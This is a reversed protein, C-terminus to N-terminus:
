THSQAQLMAALRAVLGILDQTYSVVYDQAMDRALDIRGADILPRVHPRFDRMTVIMRGHDDTMIGWALAKTKGDDKATMFRTLSANQAVRGVNSYVEDGKLIENLITFQDPIYNLIHQLRPPLGVLLKLIGVNISEGRLAVNKNAALIYSFARLNGVLFTRKRIFAQLAEIGEPTDPPEIRRYAQYAEWTEDWVWVLSDALNRFSIPFLRESPDYLSADVPILLAPNVLRGRRLSRTIERVARREGPTRANARLDEIKERVPPSPRYHAAHFIRTIVLLDNVTLRTGTQALMKRLKFIHSIDFITTEASLEPPQQLARAKELFAPSPALPLQRAPPAESPTIHVIRKCWQVAASTLVEAMAMSWTGDFFMHSQDFVVHDEARIITLPHDGVGRAARRLEALLKDKSHRDWNVIIPAESLAEVARRTEEPLLDRLHRQMKRPTETLLIDVAQEVEWAEQSPTEELIAQLQWEVMSAPAMDLYGVWQGDKARFLQDGDLILRNGQPDVPWGEIFRLAWCVGGQGYVVPNGNEDHAAVNILFYRGGFVLGIRAAWLPIERKSDVHKGHDLRALLSMQKQYAQRRAGALRDYEGRVIIRQEAPLADIAPQIFAEFAAKRIDAYTGNLPAGYPRAVEWQRPLRNFVPQNELGADRAAQSVLRIWTWEDWVVGMLEEYGWLFQIVTMVWATLDDLENAEEPRNLHYGNTENTFHAQDERLGWSLYFQWTGEEFERLKGTVTTRLRQFLDLFFAPVVILLAYLVRAFWDALLYHHKEEGPRTRVYRASLLTYGSRIMGRFTGSAYYSELPEAESSM